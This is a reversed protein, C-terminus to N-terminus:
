VKLHRKTVSGLVLGLVIMGAALGLHLWNDATNVPVFNAKSLLLYVVGGGLLFRQASRSTSRGAAVGVVGFLLHVINHLVSVEFVGLLRTDSTHGAFELQGVHTTVGPLFGLVGVALFGIGVLTAARNVAPTRTRIVAMRTERRSSQVEVIPSTVASVGQVGM